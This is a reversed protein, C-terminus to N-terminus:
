PLSVMRPDQRNDDLYRFLLEPNRWELLAARVRAGNQKVQDSPVGLLGGLAEFSLAELTLLYSLFYTFLYTLSYTPLYTPLFPLLHTLPYNPLYTLAEFSLAEVTLLYTLLYTTPLDTPLYTRLHKM